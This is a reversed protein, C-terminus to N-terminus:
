RAPGCVRRERRESSVGQVEGTGRRTWVLGGREECTAVCRGWKEGRSRHLVDDRRPSRHGAVVGGRWELRATVGNGVVLVKDKSFRRTVLLDVKGRRTFLATVYM